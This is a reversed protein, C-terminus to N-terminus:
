RTPIQGRSRRRHPRTRVFDVVAALAQAQLAGGNRRWQGARPTVAAVRALFGSLSRAARIGPEALRLQRENVALNVWAAPRWVCVGICPQPMGVNDCRVCWWGTVTDPSAWDIRDEGRGGDRLVRRASERM